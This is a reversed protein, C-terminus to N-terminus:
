GYQRSEHGADLRERYMRSPVSLTQAFKIQNYRASLLTLIAGVTTRSEYNRMGEDTM